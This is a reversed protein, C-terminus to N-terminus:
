VMTENDVSRNLLNNKPLECHDYLVAGMPWGFNKLYVKQTM